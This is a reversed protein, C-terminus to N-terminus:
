EHNIKSQNTNIIGLIFNSIICSFIFYFINPDIKNAFFSTILRIYFFNFFLLRIIEFKRGFINVSFTKIKFNDKLHLFILWIWYILVFKLKFFDHLTIMLIIVISHHNTMFYNFNKKSLGFALEYINELIILAIFLLFFLENNSKYYLCGFIITIINVFSIIQRLSYKKLLYYKSNLIEYKKINLFLVSYLIIILISSQTYKNM